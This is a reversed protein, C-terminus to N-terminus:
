VVVEVASMFDFMQLANVLRSLLTPMRYPIIPESAINLASVIHSQAPAARLRQEFHQPQQRRSFHIRTTCNKNKSPM